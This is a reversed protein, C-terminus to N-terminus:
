LCACAPRGEGGKRRGNGAGLGWFSGGKSSNMPIPVCAEQFCALDARHEKAMPSHEVNAQYTTGFKGPETRISFPDPQKGPDLSATPKGHARRWWNLTLRALASAGLVTRRALHVLVRMRHIVSSLALLIHWAFSLREGSCLLRRFPLKASIRLGMDDTLM